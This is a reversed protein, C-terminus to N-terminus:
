GALRTLALIRRAGQVVILFILGGVVLDPFRSNTAAVVMASVIVLANVRLDNATFIWSAQIHVEDSKARSLVVLTIANGLLAVLSLGIMTKPDPVPGAIVFRRIVETLGVAALTFQLYGSRAALRNKRAMTSGVAALSLGYVLADALMDASDAILGMSNAVIGAVLEALFLVANIILAIVLAKRQASQAPAAQDVSPTDVVSPEGLISAGLDLSELVYLVRAPDATHTVALQRVALDFELSLIGEIRELGMRVLTEEGTCDMQEIRYTSRLTPSSAPTDSM